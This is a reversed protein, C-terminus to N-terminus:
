SINDPDAQQKALGAPPEQIPNSDKIAKDERAKDSEKDKADEATAVGTPNDGAESDDDDDHPKLREPLEMDLLEYVERATLTEKELLTDGLLELQDRHAELIDRARQMADDVLKRVAGDIKRATEESYEPAAHMGYFNNQQDSSYEIFGLDDSMGLKTVM